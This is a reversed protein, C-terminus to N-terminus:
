LVSAYIIVFILYSSEGLANPPALIEKASMM